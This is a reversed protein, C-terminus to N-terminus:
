AQPLILISPQRNSVLTPVQFYETDRIIGKNCEVRLRMHLGCRRSGVDRSRQEADAKQKPIQRFSELM